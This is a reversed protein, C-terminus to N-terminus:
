NAFLAIFLVFYRGQMMIRVPLSGQGELARGSKAEERLCALYPSSVTSTCRSQRVPLGHNPQCDRHWHWHRATRSPTVTVTVTVLETVRLHTRTPIQSPSVNGTHFVTPRCCPVAPTVTGAPIAVSTMSPDGHPILMKHPTIHPLTM